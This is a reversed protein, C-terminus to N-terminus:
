CQKSRKRLEEIFHEANVPCDVQKGIWDSFYIANITEVCNLGDHYNASPRKGEKIADIFDQICFKHADVNPDITEETYIVKPKGFKLTYRSSEAKMSFEDESVENMFFKLRDFTDFVMKGKTGSLELRNTGPAEGTSSVLTCVFGNEYILNAVVSDDVETRHFVGYGITSNVKQPPGFLNCIMDINHVCQNILVGGGEDKWTSKWGGIDYYKQPRYWDTIEWVCRKLKGLEGCEVVQKIRQYVPMLRQNFLVAFTVETEHLYPAIQKVTLADVGLPKDSLVHVGKKVAELAIIPHLYHPTDIIVADAAKDSFMQQYSVYHKCINQPDVSAFRRKDIDCVAVLKGGDIEHNLFYKAYKSGQRGIGIIAVRIINNGNKM